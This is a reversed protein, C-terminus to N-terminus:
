NEGDIFLANILIYVSLLIGALTESKTISNGGPPESEAYYKQFLNMIGLTPYQRLAPELAMLKESVSTLYRSLIGQRCQPNFSGDDSLMAELNHCNSDDSEFYYIHKKDALREGLVNVYDNDASLSLIKSKRRDFGDNAAFESLAEPSFGQGDFSLCLTVIDSNICVFQAKNGGKSHGALTVTKNKILTKSVENFWELARAQRETAYGYESDYVGSLGKGNDLWEGKGTPCFIVSSNGHIDTFVFADEYLNGIRSSATIPDKDVTKGITVLKLVDRNKWKSPIEKMCSYELETIIEQMSQGSTPRFKRYLHSYLCYAAEKQAIVQTNKDINNM